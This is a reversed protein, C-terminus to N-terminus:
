RAWFDMASGMRQAAGQSAVAEIMDDSQVLAMQPTDHGSIEGIVMVPSRVKGQRHVCRVRPCHMRWVPASHDLDRFEASQMVM